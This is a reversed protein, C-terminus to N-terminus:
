HRPQSHTLALSNHLTVYHNLRLRYNLTNQSMPWTFSLISLRIPGLGPAKSSAMFPGNGTSPLSKRSRQVPLAGALAHLISNSMLQRIKLVLVCLRLGCTAERLLRLHHAVSNNSIPGRATSVVVRLVKMVSHRPYGGGNQQIYARTNNTSLIM